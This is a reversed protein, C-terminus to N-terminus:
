DSASNANQCLLRDSEAVNPNTQLYDEVWNCARILLDDLDLDWLIVTRDRSGSALLKGDGSFRVSMVSDSHGILTKLLTGDLSWLKIKGDYSGSAIIEGHPSFSVSTVSDSSGKLFTMLLEGQLNWLKVTNDYGATAISKGDPSFSVDLVYNNHAEITELLVDNEEGVSSKSSVLAGDISWLKVTGDDSASALMKGSPSFSVSNVWETHGTLTAILKGDVSWLRVTKDKSASAILKGNPSFSVSMVSDTHGTLTLIKSCPSALLPYNFFEVNNNASGLEQCPLKSSFHWLKITKDYSGSALIKATPSFSVSKVRDEHGKLTQLLVGRRSWVKITHDRSASALWKDDASFIVGLVRKQHGNLIHQQVNNLSWLGVTKDYSASALIKGDPSFSAQTVKDGHGRLTKLLTGNPYWIKITNDEGTSAIIQGDPSFIASFVQLSHEKFILKEVAKNGSWNWLKVIGDGGATVITKGDPSFNVSYVKTSIPQSKIDTHLLIAVLKGELNWLRVKGDDGAAAIINGDPSFSVWNVSSKADITKLLVGSYNWIKVTKDVSGSALTKGDPSFNVAWISNTHGTLTIPLKQPAIAELNGRCDIDRTLTKKESHQETLGRRAESYFHGSNHCLEWSLNWLKITNDNSVSGLWKGDPSFSVRVVSEKHGKLTTLLSGDPSWLKITKDASASAIINGQPHFDVGWIVDGHGELRNKKKVGYVAQRLSAAIRFKTETVGNSNGFASKLKKWKIGARLSEILADFENNSFFLAESTATLANIDALQKRSEARQWFGIATVTSSAFLFMGVIAIGLRQQLVLNLKEQSIKKDTQAKQKETEARRLRKELGFRQRIPYVLYDHVLQYRNEPVERWIFLLGSGVLIELVLDINELNKFNNNKDNIKKERVNLPSINASHQQLALLLDQKTKRPRILKEDTLLFLIKLTIEENKKGCDQIVQEIFHRLLKDTAEQPNAGLKQFQALTTIPPNEEQLQLGVVQLEIPRIQKKEDALGEVLANILVPELEFKSRKTLCAIAAYADFRSFNTLPYRIKRDLINNNIADLNVSRDCELLYHLYDERMSLITKVFPLNLCDALFDYFKGRTELSKATFFFEEFQDFILVTTLNNESNKRLEEIVISQSDRSNKTLRRLSQPLPKDDNVSTEKGWIPIAAKTPSDAALSPANEERGGRRKLVEQLGIELEGMWNTYDRIAVPLINRGGISINELTPVLGANVLSSKGVGSPGHIIILKYDDRGIREVLNHIDQQRTTASIEELVKVPEKGINAQHIQPQIQLPSAGIFALFGYQHEVKRQEKKIRFAKLYESREYYLSRLEKLIDFYLQPYYDDPLYERNQLANKEAVIAKELCDVAGEYRGLKRLSQGLLLLYLNRETPLSESSADGIELALAALQCAQHWNLRKLAVKGLFGYDRAVQRNTGYNIHIDIANEAVVQLEEWAELGELVEELMTIVEAVLHPRNAEEFVKKADLFYSYAVEWKQRSGVRLNAAEFRYCLAIHFLIIGPMEAKFIGAIEPFFKGQKEASSLVETVQKQWFDFSKQYHKLALASRGSVYDDWGLILELNAQTVPDLEQGCNQLDQWALEIEERRSKSLGNLSEQLGPSPFFSSFTLISFDDSFNNSKVRTNEGRNLDLFFSETHQKLLNTLEEPSLEFKITAAAWSKFDPASRILKAVLEDTVWLVLPFSFNKRFEDRVQNTSILLEEIEEVKELGFISLAATPQSFKELYNSITTYLAIAEKPLVIEQIEVASQERLLSNIQQQLSHYNCCALILSFQGQSFSIARIIKKLSRQNRAESNGQKEVDNM